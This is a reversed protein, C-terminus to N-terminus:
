QLLFSLVFCKFLILMYILTGVFLFVLLYTAFLGLVYEEYESESRSCVNSEFESKNCVHCVGVIIFKM